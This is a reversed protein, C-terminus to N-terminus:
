RFRSSRSIFRPINSPTTNRIQNLTSSTQSQISVSVPFGLDIFQDNNVDQHLNSDSSFSPIFHSDISSPPPPPFLHNSFLLGTIASIPNYNTESANSGSKSSSNSRILLVDSLTRCLPCRRAEYECGQVLNQKISEFQKYDTTGFVKESKEWCYSHFRKKCCGVTILNPSGQSIGDPQENLSQFCIPCINEDDM